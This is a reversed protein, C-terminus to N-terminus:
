SGTRAACEPCAFRTEPQFLHRVLVVETAPIGCLTADGAMAHERGDVVRGDALVQLPVAGASGTARGELTRWHEMRAAETATMPRLDAERHAAAYIDEINHVM